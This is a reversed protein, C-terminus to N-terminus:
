SKGRNILIELEECLTRFDKQESALLGKCADPDQLGRLDPDSSWNKLVTKLYGRWMVPDSISLKTVLALDARLWDRAQNRWRLRGAEDLGAADHGRGAGLAAAICAARFRAKSNLDDALHADTALVEAFIEAAKEYRGEFQCVGLLCLKEDNSRPRYSGELFGRLNPLMMAEAERRLLHYIWHERDVAQSERWDSSLIAMSFTRLAEEERGLRHRAMASVLRPASQLATRAPGDMIAISSELRGNRYEALGKAFMLYPVTWAPKPKESALARDILASGVSLREGSAPSLLCARGKREAVQIDETAGFHEILGRCTSLYEDPRGRFLRFEAYGDWDDHEHPELKMSRRWLAELTEFDGSQSRCGRLGKRLKARMPGVYLVPFGIDFQDTPGNTLELGKEFEEAAEALKGLSVLCDGLEARMIIDRPAFEVAKRYYSAAESTRGERKLMTGLNFYLFPTGPRIALAAQFTRLAEANDNRRLAFCGLLTNVWIDDPHHRQVSLLFPVPDGGKAAWMEGLSVLLNIPVEDFRASGALRALEEKDRRVSPERLRDSWGRPDPDAKRAVELLWTERRADLQWNDGRLEAVYTACLVWDDIAALLADKVDSRGMRDAAVRPSGDM